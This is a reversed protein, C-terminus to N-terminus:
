AIVSSITSSWPGEQLRPNVWAIAIVVRRGEDKQEFSLIHRLRTSLEIRWVEEDSFRWRIKFGHYGKHQVGQTPQGHEGRVAYIVMEGHRVTVSLLPSEVPAPLPYRPSRVRPRINMVALAEDPVALNGILYNTFVSFFQKLEKFANDKAVTTIHNRLSRNRGAEYAKRTADVLATLEALREPEIKWETAHEKCQNCVDSTYILVKGDAQKLHSGQRMTVNKLNAPLYLNKWLFGFL